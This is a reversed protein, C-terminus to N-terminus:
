LNLVLSNVKGILHILHASPISLSSISIPLRSLSFPATPLRLSEALARRADILPYTDLKNCLVIQLIQSRNGNSHIAVVCSSRVEFLLSSLIADKACPM